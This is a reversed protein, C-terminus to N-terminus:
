KNSDEQDSKEFAIKLSQITDPGYVAGCSPCETVEPEIENTCYPCHFKIKEGNGKSTHLFHRIDEENADRNESLFKFIEEATVTKNGTLSEMIEDVLKFRFLEKPSFRGIREHIYKDYEVLWSEIEGILRIAGPYKGKNSELFGVVDKVYEKPRAQYLWQRIERRANELDKLEQRLYPLRENIEEFRRVKEEIWKM